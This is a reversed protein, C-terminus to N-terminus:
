LEVHAKAGEEKVEEDGKEGGEEKEEEEEEVGVYVTNVNGQAYTV